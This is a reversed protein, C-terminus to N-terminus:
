TLLTNVFDGSGSETQRLFIRSPSRRHRHPTLAIDLAVEHHCPRLNRTRWAMHKIVTELIKQAFNAEVSEDLLSPSTATPAFRSLAAPRPAVAVRIAL